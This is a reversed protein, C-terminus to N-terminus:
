FSFSPPTDYYQSLCQTSFIIQGKDAYVEVGVGDQLGDEWTGQYLAGNSLKLVGYPGRTNEQFDGCYETGDPRVQIFFHYLLYLRQFWVEEWRERSFNLFM